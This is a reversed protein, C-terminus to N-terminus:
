SEEQMPLGAEKMQVAIMGNWAVAEQQVGAEAIAEM